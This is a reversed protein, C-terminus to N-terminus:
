SVLICSCSSSVLQHRHATYEWLNPCLAYISEFKSHQQYSSSEMKIEKTLFLFNLGSLHGSGEKLMM